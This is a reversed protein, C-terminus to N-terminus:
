PPSHSAASPASGASQAQIQRDLSQQQANVTNQVNKAKNLDRIYPAFVTHSVPPPASHAQKAQDERSSGCAAIMALITCLTFLNLVKM